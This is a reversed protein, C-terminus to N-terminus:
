NKLKIIRLPTYVPGDPRLDSRMVIVEGATFTMPELLTKELEHSVDGVRTVDKVRGLTLHPTFPREEKAIGLGAMGEEIRSQMLALRGAAEEIGVWFVRPRKLNPFGGTGSVTIPFPPVDQAASQVVQEVQDIRNAAVDGLFKLTIHLGEQRAWSIFGKALPRLRHQLGNIAKKVDAPLEICVFTRYMVM